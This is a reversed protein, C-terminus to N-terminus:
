LGCKLNNRKHICFHTGMTGRALLNLELWGNMIISKHWSQRYLPMLMVLKLGLQSRESVFFVIWNWMLILQFEIEKNWPKERWCSFVIQTIETASTCSFMLFLSCYYTREGLCHFDQNKKEWFVKIIKLFDCNREQNGWSGCLAIFRPMESTHPLSLYKNLHAWSSFAPSTTFSQLIANHGLSLFNTRMKEAHWSLELEKIFAACHCNSM